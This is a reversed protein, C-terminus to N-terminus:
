GVIAENDRDIYGPGFATLSAPTSPDVDLVGKEIEERFYPQVRDWVAQTRATPGALFDPGGAYPMVNSVIFDRVDIVRQWVTGSFGRWAKGM